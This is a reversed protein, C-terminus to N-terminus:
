ERTGEDLELQAAIGAKLVEHFLAAGYQELEAVVRDVWEHQILAIIASSGPKLSEQLDRLTENSFGMDLAEAAIGGTAAGAVAGVIVGPPGGLLGVLAGAVAGFLAGRGGRVDETERISVKGNEKKIMVAANLIQIVGERDLGRMDKLVEGAEGEDNFAAVLLEVPGAMEDAM